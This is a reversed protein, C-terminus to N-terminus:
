PPAHFIPSGDCLGAAQLDIRFLKIADRLGELRQFLGKTRQHLVQRGVEFRGGPEAHLLVGLSWEPLRRHAARADPRWIPLAPFSREDTPSPGSARGRVTWRTGCPPPCRTVM